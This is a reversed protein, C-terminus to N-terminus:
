SHPAFGVAVDNRRHCPTSVHPDYHEALASRLSDVILLFANRGM